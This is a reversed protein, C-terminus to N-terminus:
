KGVRGEADQGAAYLAAAKRAEVAVRERFEVPEMVEVHSGYQLVWRLLGELHPVTLHLILSGDPQEERGTECPWQKERMWRSQYPDFRLTIDYEEGGRFGGFQRKLYEDRDYDEPITFDEGTERIAHIRSLAFDRMAQRTHDYAHLYWDGQQNHLHYPDILRDSEENRSAAYYRLGLRKRERVAALIRRYCDVELPRAPGIDFSIARDYFRLDVTVKEPLARCLKRFASSLAPEYPTGAYQRLVKEAVFFALMEGETMLIAPLAFSKDSYTYGNHRRDFVLPIQLANRWFEIDRYATRETVEGSECLDRIQPYRGAQIQADLWILRELPRRGALKRVSM